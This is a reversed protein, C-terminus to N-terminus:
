SGCMAYGLASHRAVENTLFREGCEMKFTSNWSEMVANDHPNGRRSMSCVIGNAALIKQYDEVDGVTVVVVPAQQGKEPDWGRAHLFM